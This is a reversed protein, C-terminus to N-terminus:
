GKLPTRQAQPPVCDSARQSRAPHGLRSTPTDVAMALRPAPRIGDSSLTAAALVMQLPSVRLESGPSSAAAAPLRLEPTDYFGLAAYWEQTVQQSPWLNFGSAQIFPQM